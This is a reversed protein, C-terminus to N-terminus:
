LMPPTCACAVVAVSKGINRLQYPQKGFIQFGGGRRLTRTQDGVQVEVTGLLVVAATEGDHSIPEDGTGAGPQYREIFMQLSKDRREAGLVRLDTEGRTLVALDGSDYFLVNQQSTPIAFFDAISIPIASLIRHLSALSPAHAEQEILSITSNTVGARKALERQTLGASDRVRRLRAGIDLDSAEKSSRASPKRVAEDHGDDNM